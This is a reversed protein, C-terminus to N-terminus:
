LFECWLGVKTLEMFEDRRLGASKRAAASGMM